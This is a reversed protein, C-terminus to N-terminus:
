VNWESTEPDVEEALVKELLENFTAQATGPVEAAHDLNVMVSAGRCWLHIDTQKRERYADIVRVEIDNMTLGPVQPGLLCYLSASWQHRLKVSEPREVPQAGRVWNLFETTQKKVVGHERPDAMDRLVIFGGVPTIESDIWQVNGTNEVRYQKGDREFIVGKIYAMAAFLSNKDEVWRDVDSRRM